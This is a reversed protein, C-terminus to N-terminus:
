KADGKKGRKDPTAAEKKYDHRVSGFAKTNMCRHKIREFNQVTSTLINKMKLMEKIIVVNMRIDREHTPVAFDSIVKRIFFGGGAYVLASSQVTYGTTRFGCMRIIQMADAAEKSMYGGCATEIDKRLKVHMDRLTKSLKLSDTQLKNGPNLNSGVREVGSFEHGFGQESTNHKSTILADLHYGGLSESAIQRRDRSAKSVPEGYHIAAASSFVKLMDFFFWVDLDRETNFRTPVGHIIMEYLSRFLNMAYLIDGSLRGFKQAQLDVSEIINKLTGSVNIENSDSGVEPSSAFYAKSEDHEPQRDDRDVLFQHLTQLGGLPGGMQIGKCVNVLQTPSVLSLACLVADVDSDLREFTKLSSSLTKKLVNVDAVSFVKVTGAFSLDIIRWYLPNSTDHQGFVTLYAPMAVGFWSPKDGKLDWAIEYLCEPLDNETQECTEPDPVSSSVHPKRVPPVLHDQSETLPRDISINTSEIVAKRSSKAVAVTSEVDEFTVDTQEDESACDKFLEVNHHGDIIAPSNNILETQRNKKMVQKRPQEKVPRKGNSGREADYEVPSSDFLQEITQLGEQTLDVLTNYTQEHLHVYPLADSNRVIAEFIGKKAQFLLSFEDKKNLEAYIKRYARDTKKLQSLERRVASTYMQWAKDHTKSYFAVKDPQRAIFAEM